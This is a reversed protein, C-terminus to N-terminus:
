VPDWQPAWPPNVCREDKPLADVLGMEHEDLEFDFIDFNSKRHQESSSGPIAIVEDQQILWRLAVQNASKGYNRGIEELVPHKALDGQALPAYATILIDHEKACELLTTQALLPHYEIQNCFIPAHSIAEELLSKPFNSVGIHRFLGVDRMKLMAQLTDYLPIESNPWHIIYLDLYDLGLAELSDEAEVRLDEPGLRERPAKSAVFIEDRPLDTARLAAGVDAENEYARATDIHRYGIRLADEVCEQCQGGQLRYTGFGLAPIKTGQAEKYIM